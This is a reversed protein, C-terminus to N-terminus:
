IGPSRYRPKITSRFHPIGLWVKSVVGLEKCGVLGTTSKGINDMGFRKGLLGFQQRSFVGLLQRNWALPAAIRM